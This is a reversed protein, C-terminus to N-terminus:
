QSIRGTLIDKFSDVFKLWYYIVNPQLEKENTQNCKDKNYTMILYSIDVNSFCTGYESLIQHIAIFKFKPTSKQPNRSM